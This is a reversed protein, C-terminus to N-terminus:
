MPLNAHFGLWLLFVSLCAVMWRLVMPLFHIALL